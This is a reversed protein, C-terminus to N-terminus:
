TKWQLSTDFVVFGKGLSWKHSFLWVEVAHVSFDPPKSSQLMSSLLLTPGAAGEHPHRNPGLQSRPHTGTGDAGQSPPCPATSRGMPLLRAAERAADGPRRGQEARFPYGPYRVKKWKGVWLRLPKIFYLFCITCPFLQLCFLCFLREMRRLLM